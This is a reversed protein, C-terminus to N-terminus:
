RAVRSVLENQRRAVADHSWSAEAHLRAEGALSALRGRDQLLSAAMAGLDAATSGEVYHRGAEVGLGEAGLTTTVVPLRAAMAEMIKVRAGAGSWLPVVMLTARAMEEPMSPVDAAIDAGTKRAADILADTPGKGAIRLRAEPVATRVRPWGDRLFRLAGTENPKWSFSGAILVIPPEAPRPEPYRAFDIGVPLTEVWADPALARLADREGDQIALTLAAARCLDRETRELRAAQHRAYARAPGRLSDEAFRRMWLHELNQERIVLPIGDLRDVYTAMHLNNALVFAPRTARVREDLARAFAASRYRALTYPLRGFMGQALTVPGAPPRHPVRRVDVGLDRWMEPVPAEAGGPPVLSLLTVDYEQAAAWVSQTMAIRGGDDEPWPLRPTLLLASRRSTRGEM